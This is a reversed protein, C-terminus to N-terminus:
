PNFIDEFGVFEEDAIKYPKEEVDVDQIIGSAIMLPANPGKQDLCELYQPYLMVHNEIYEEYPYFASSSMEAVFVKTRPAKVIVSANIKDGKGSSIDWIYHWTFVAEDRIGEPLVTINNTSAFGGDVISKASATSTNHVGIYEDDGVEIDSIVDLVKEEENRGSQVWTVPNAYKPKMFFEPSTTINSYTECNSYEIKSSVDSEDDSFLLPGIPRYESFPRKM